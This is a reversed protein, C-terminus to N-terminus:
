SPWSRADAARGARGGPGRGRLLPLLAPFYRLNEEFLDFVSTIWREGFWVRPRVGQQKLEEPRTDTAQEFLPIRTERWLQRGFLFPRTPPWRSRSGPSPRPPTGTAARVGGPQGAPPVARQHLRGRAHDHRRPHAAARRRRHRDAHGRRPRRLDAREAAPLAPQGVHDGRHVDQERLTPLIGIMVLRTGAGRAETTPTREPQRRVESSWARSPTATRAAPAARQDGPQVPGARDGLGPRRHRGAGRANRMRRCGREDVLNLEIELGVQPPEVDFRSERLMRAFVDLSRRVKERYQRRDEGSIKIAQIDRGM